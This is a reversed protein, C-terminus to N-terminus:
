KVVGISHNKGCKCNVDVEMTTWWPYSAEEITFDWETVNKRLTEHLNPCDYTITIQRLKLRDKM